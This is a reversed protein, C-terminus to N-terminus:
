GTGRESSPRYYDPSDQRFCSLAGASAIHLAKNEDGIPPFGAVANNSFTGLPVNLSSMTGFRPESRRALTRPKPGHILCVRARNMGACGHAPHSGILKSLRSISQAVSRRVLRADPPMGARRRGVCADVHTRSAQIVPNELPRCSRGSRRVQRKGATRDREDANDVLAQEWAVKAVSLPRQGRGNETVLRCSEVISRVVM